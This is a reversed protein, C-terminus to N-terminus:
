TDNQVFWSRDPTGAITQLRLLTAEQWVVEAAVIDEANGHLARIINPVVHLSTSAYQINAPNAIVGLVFTAANACNYLESKGAREPANRIGIREIQQHLQKREPTDSGGHQIHDWAIELIRELCERTKANLSSRCYDIARSLCATMFAHQVVVPLYVLTETRNM